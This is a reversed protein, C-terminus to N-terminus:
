NNLSGADIWKKVLLIKCDALKSANKPMKSFGSAHNITGYLMGNKANQAVSAYNDLNIGGSENGKSHCSTCNQTLIPQIDKSFAFSTTDCSVLTKPYLKEETDYYCAHLVLSLCIFFIGYFINKKM